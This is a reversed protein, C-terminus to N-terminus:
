NFKHNELNSTAIINSNTNLINNIIIDGAHIPLLPKHKKLEMACEMVKDKPIAKDTIVSFPKNSECSKMTGTLIRMPQLAEQKAYIEGRRCLNGAVNTVINNETKINIRCGLPCTICILEIEM